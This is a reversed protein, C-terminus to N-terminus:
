GTNSGKSFKSYSEALHKAISKLIPKLMTDQTNPLIFYRSNYDKALEALVDINKTSKTNKKTGIFFIPIQGIKAHISEAWSRM